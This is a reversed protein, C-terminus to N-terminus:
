RLLQRIKRVAKGFFPHDPPRTLFDALSFLDLALSVPKWDPSLDGYGSIFAEAYGPPLEDDFRLMNAVDILPNSSMAFEWDLVATVAGNAVLINKPNFDSHVLQRSGQVSPLFSNYEVALSMLGDQESPTLALADLLCREVFAPLESAPETGDPELDVGDFFGPRDFTVTGITGLVSGIAYGLEAPSDAIVESAMAGDVFRSIMVPEGAVVGDPDSAVVEPVLGPLRGAIATEVACKNRRLYRRVVFRDGSASEILLNENSFGGDLARAIARVAGPVASSVWSWLLDTM